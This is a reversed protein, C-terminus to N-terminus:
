GGANSESPGCGEPQKLTKVVAAYYAAGLTRYVSAKNEDFVLPSKSVQTTRINICGLPQPGIWCQREL